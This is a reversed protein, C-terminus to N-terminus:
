SSMTIFFLPGGVTQPIGADIQEATYATVEQLSGLEIKDAKQLRYLAQNLSERDLSLDGRLHFLPLYNETGLEGDLRQIAALIEADSVAPISVDESIAAESEVLLPRRVFELYNSLLDLSLVPLKGKPQYDDHLYQLGKLTLWVSAKTVAVQMELEILGRDCLGQLIAERTSVKKIKLETAKLPGSAQAIKNLANLAPPDLPLQTPDLKLLAEGAPLIKALAIAQTYDLWGMEALDKCLKGKAKFNVFDRASYPSRYDTCGLLILLFKLEDTSKM